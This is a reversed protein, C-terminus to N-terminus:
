PVLHPIVFRSDQLLTTVTFARCLWIYQVVTVFKHTCHLASFCYINLFSAELTSNRFGNLLSSLVIVLSRLILVIAM